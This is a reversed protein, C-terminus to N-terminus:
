EAAADARWARREIGMAEDQVLRALTADLTRECWLQDVRLLGCRCHRNDRWGPYDMVPYLCVGQLPVGADLAGHVEGMVYRLWGPGNGGEAGTETLLMPRAYRAHVEALLDRLPQYMWHGMPLVWGGRFFQNDPYYNLGVIDLCDESGGLEPALRGAVMDFAEFQSARHAAAARKAHRSAEPPVVVNILPEAMTFRAAPAVDRVARTGAIAARALQRKLEPGRGRAGPFMGEQDGGAWAWYSIENVPCLLPVDVGENQLLRAAAACFRAFRDVFAPSWIDLDHPLGYHCLDWIPQVGAARAARVMPLASSWDYHGPATEILHWRFADRVTRIGCGALAHYDAAARRDHGTAAILDLQEGGPRRHASGEFGGMLFSRFPSPPIPVAEAHRATSRSLPKLM